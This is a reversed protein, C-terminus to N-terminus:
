NGSYNEVEMKNKLRDYNVEIEWRHRYLKGVETTNAMKSPLDTLLIMDENEEDSNIIPIKVIRAKIYPLKKAAEVIEYRSGYSIAIVVTLGTNNASKAIAAPWSPKLYYM